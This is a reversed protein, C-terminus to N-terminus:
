GGQAVRVQPICPVNSILLWTHAVLRHPLDLHQLRGYFIYPLGLQLNNNDLRLQPSASSMDRKMM